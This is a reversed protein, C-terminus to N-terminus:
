GKLPSDCGLFNSRSVLTRSDRNRLLNVRTVLIRTALIPAIVGLTPASTNLATIITPGKAFGGPWRALARGRVDGYELWDILRSRM